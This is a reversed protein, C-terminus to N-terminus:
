RSETIRLPSHVPDARVQETVPSLVGRKVGSQAVEERKTHPQMSFNLGIRRVKFDDKANISAPSNSCHTLWYRGTLM